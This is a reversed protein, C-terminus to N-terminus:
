LSLCQMIVSVHFGQEKVPCILAHAAEPVLVFAAIGSKMGCSEFVYQFKEIIFTM